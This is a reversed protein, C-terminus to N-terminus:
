MEDIVGDDPEQALMQESREIYITQRPTAGELRDQPTDLWILYSAGLRERVADFNLGDSLLEGREKQWLRNAEDRLTAERWGTRDGWIMGEGLDDPLWLCRLDLDHELEECWARFGNKWEAEDEGALTQIARLRQMYYIEDELTALIWDEIEMNYQVQLYQFFRLLSVPLREQTERDAISKRIYHSFVFWRLEFENTNVISKRQHNALYDVLSEANFCDQQATRSDMELQRELWEVFGDLQQYGLDLLNQIDLENDDPEDSDPIEYDDNEQHSM